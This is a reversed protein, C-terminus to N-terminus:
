FHSSVWEKKPLGGPRTEWFRWSLLPRVFNALNWCISPTKPIRVVQTWGCRRRSAFARRWLSSNLTDRFGPFFLRFLYPFREKRCTSWPIQKSFFPLDSPLFSHKEANTKGKLGGLAKWSPTSSSFVQWITRVGHWPWFVCCRRKSINRYMHPEPINIHIIYSIQCVSPDSPIDQYRRSTYIQTMDVWAIQLTAMWGSEAQVLRPYGTNVLGLRGTSHINTVGLKRWLVLTQPQWRDRSVPTNFNPGALTTAKWLSLYDAFVSIVPWDSKTELRERIQNGTFGLGELAGLWHSSIGEVAYCTRQADRSSAHEMESVQFINHDNLWLVNWVLIHVTYSIVQDQRMLITSCLHLCLM